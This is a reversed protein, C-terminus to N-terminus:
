PTTTTATTTAPTVPAAPTEVIEPEVVVPAVASRTVVTPDLEATLSFSVSGDKPNSTIGSFIARKIRKDTALEASQAALTNFTRASGSMDILGTRDDSVTIRVGSFRVGTLTLKELADFFQSLAIHNNLITQGEVFRDRLRIFETVTAQDIANQAAVVDTAKAKAVNELYLQYGFVAFCGVVVIATILYALALFPNAAATRHRNSTTVPQKPVFSTPITPPLAM